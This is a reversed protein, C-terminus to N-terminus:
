YNKYISLTEIAEDQKPTFYTDKGVVTYDGPYTIIKAEYSSYNYITDMHKLLDDETFNSKLYYFITSYLDNANSKYVSQTYKEMLTRFFQVNRLMRNSYSDSRYRLMDLANKGDLHQDGKKLDIVLDQYEDEYNMNVPVNYDIGGLSDIIDDFIAVSAIAYYNIHLGTMGQVKEMLYDIGKDTYAAGLTTDVGDVTVRTVAPINVFVVSEKECSFRVLLIADARSPADPTVKPQYDTGVLLATFSSTLPTDPDLADDFNVILDDGSETQDTDDATDTNNFFLGKLDLFGAFGLVATAIISFIVLSICFTILFTLANRKFAAM